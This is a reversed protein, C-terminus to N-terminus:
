LEYFNNLLDVVESDQTQDFQQYFQGVAQFFIPNHLCLVEDVLSGIDALTNPPSVPVAVIIKRPKAKKISQIAAKMTFGTALGDDVIIVIKGSISLAPHGKRYTHLREQALSQKEAVATRLFETSVGLRKIVDDHFLGEGTETVAGIAYEPNGPAGIKKPCTIDLKLNLRKAVHYGTVVGGRPLAIVIVDDRNEYKILQEALQNGADERDTFLM